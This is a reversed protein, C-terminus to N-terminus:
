NWLAKSHWDDSAFAGISKRCDDFEPALIFDRLRYKWESEPRIVNLLHVMICVLFYLSVGTTDDEERVADELAALKANKSADCYRKLGVSAFRSFILREHHVCKNRLNKILTLWLVFTKDTM